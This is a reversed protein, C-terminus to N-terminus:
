QKIYIVEIDSSLNLTKRWVDAKDSWVEKIERGGGGGGDVGRIKIM